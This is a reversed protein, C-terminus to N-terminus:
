YLDLFLRPGEQIDICQYYTLKGPPKQLVLKSLSDAEQNEERFVHNFTIKKFSSILASVRWPRLM